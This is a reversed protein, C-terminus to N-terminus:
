AHIRVEFPAINDKINYGKMINPITKPDLEKKLKNQNKYSFVQIERKLKKEYEGKQFDKDNGYIFLDIDSSKGWDGRSFSGFLIATKIGEISSLHQFLGSKEITKLGHIRKEQRFRETENNAVYYPMKGKTKTRKIFKEKLLKKIQSNVRERSLKSHKILEEFHWRKLPENYFPTRLNYKM